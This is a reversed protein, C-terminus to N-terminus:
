KEHDSGMGPRQICFVHNSKGTFGAAYKQEVFKSKAGDTGGAESPWWHIPIENKRAVKQIHANLQDTLIRMVGNSLGKFGVARLFRVIGAPFFMSLIYGRIIVRDFCFYKFKINESFQKLFSNNM